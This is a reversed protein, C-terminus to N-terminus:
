SWNDAPIQEIEFGTAKIITKDPVSLVMKKLDNIHYGEWRANFDITSELEPKYKVVRKWSSKQYHLSLNSRRNGGHKLQTIMVANEPFFDATIAPLGGYTGLIKYKAMMNKETPTAGQEAYYRGQAAALLGNGIVAVYGPGRKHLPIGQFLDFIYEDLNAYTGGDGIIVEADPLIQESARQKLLEIWGVNVNKMLPDVSLDSTTAHQVGHFGIMQRDDNFTQFFARSYEKRWNKFESWDSVDDDHMAFDTHAKFMEYPNESMPQYPLPRRENGAKTNNTQTGPGQKGITLTNGKKQKRPEVNILSLFGSQKPMDTNLKQEQSATLSFSKEVQKKSVGYKKSLDKQILDAFEQGEPM